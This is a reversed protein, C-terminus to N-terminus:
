EDRLAKVPNTSAARIVHYGVTILTILFAAGASILFTPWERELEIRYAFKQLWDETFYWALPFALLMGLGVWLFFEKSVLLVLSNVSAGIVKRVGIEKTRQETTFASLGLLGLCAIFVTLCSFATFIQSRKEDAEYQSDFDQDLFTFAFSNNPYIEKWGQEIEELSQRVDGEETRVFVFYHDKDLVIMLPEIADYLSNQHYDKVVGVVRKEIDTNNPGSKEFIFKKGIPNTWSMRRVMAENVLVAYTTDSTVDRSFDRGAVIKMGMTRVFDYNAGFLDVGRDTLKGDNDEVKLLLKGVGQGPAANAMGVGAVKPSQKLREVLVASKERMERESLDL